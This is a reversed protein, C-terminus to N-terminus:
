VSSAILLVILVFLGMVSNIIVGLIGTILGTTAIGNPQKKKQIAYCVIAFIGLPLGFYPMLWILLSIIGCIMGTIGWANSVKTQKTEM